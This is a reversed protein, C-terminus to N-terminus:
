RNEKRKLPWEGTLDDAVEGKRALYARFNDAWAKYFGAQDENTYQGYQNRVATAVKATLECDAIANHLTDEDYEIRFHDALNMLKRGGKRYKDRARDIVLPDFLRVKEAVVDGWRTAVGHREFEYHIMSVDFNANFAVWPLTWHERFVALAETLAPGPPQGNQNLFGNTFGHVEAAEEPVPVGPNIVWETVKLINGDRDSLGIVLQVIRDNFVDVGTSEVDFVLFSPNAM